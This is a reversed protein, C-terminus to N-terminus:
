VDFLNDLNDDSESDLKDISEIILAYIEDSYFGRNYDDIIINLINNDIEESTSQMYHLLWRDATDIQKQIPAPKKLKKSSM